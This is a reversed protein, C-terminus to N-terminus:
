LPLYSDVLYNFCPLFVCLVGFGVFVGAATPAMWHIKDTFGTWGFGKQQWFIMTVGLSMGIFLGIFPLEAIGARMHYVQGFVFPYAELLAYVLGYIFSMYLSVLCIMPETILMRLPRTFYKIVLDRLDTEVMEHRAHIAWNNTKRRMTAADAALIRPAYTEPLFAASIAGNVLGLIAPIYLTWRWGLHSSATFGGVIPGTFPGGFVTLAYISIAGGRYKNDFVDALVGPVVALQCAGCLGAFFRCILLTQINEGAASAISIIGGGIMSIVLPWRRGYLESGPAWLIPGAAFGLVFLTTGLTGVELGVGLEKSASETGPAFVASNFAVIWTGSCVLVSIFIKTLTEWNYPHRQDDPGDFELIYQEPDVLPPPFPKKGEDPVVTQEFENMRQTSLDAFFAGVWNRDDGNAATFTAADNQVERCARLADDFIVVDEKRRQQLLRVLLRAANCADKMTDTKYFSATFNLTDLADGLLSLSSRTDMVLLFCVIQFPVNVVQHWPSCDRVLEQACSLAKRFLALVKDVMAPSLDVAQAYIRRLVCLVLNSQAMTSPPQTHPSKLLEALTSTLNNEDTPKGPDLGVSAPLLSLIEATYNGPDRLDQVPLYNEQYPVRPLGLDYSTWVNLHRAVGVLRRRIDDDDHDDRRFMVSRLTSHLQSVEILHILTSSAIWTAYPSDTIRLYVTRLTWATLLDLSPPDTLHHADLISRAKAVLQSEITTATRQSFLSGLAAVGTLIADFMQPETPTQWRAKLRKFFCQHDIFGYCCNVKDFYIQALAEIHQLSTMNIALPTLPDGPTSPQRAGTKWGFLGFRPASTPNIKLSMNRVFAASCNAEVRRVVTDREREADLSQQECRAADLIPYDSEQKSVHRKEKQGNFHCCKRKRERCPECALRSRKRKSVIM